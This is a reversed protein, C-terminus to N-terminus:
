SFSIEFRKRSGSFENRLKVGQFMEFILFDNVIKEDFFNKKITQKKLTRCDTLETAGEFSASTFQM